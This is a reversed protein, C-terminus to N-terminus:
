GPSSVVEVPCRSDELVKRPVSGLGHLLPHVSRGRGVMLLDAGSSHEVLAKSAAQHVVVLEVDVDAATLHLADLRARLRNRYTTSWEEELKADVLADDYGSSMSWAHLLSLRAENGAARAFACKLLEDTDDDVADVGAVIRRRGGPRGVWDEPVSVM